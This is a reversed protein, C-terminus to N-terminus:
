RSAKGTKGLTIGALVGNLMNTSAQVSADINECVSINMNKRIEDASYILDDAISKLKGSMRENGTDLFSDSLEYLRRSRAEILKLADVIQDHWM